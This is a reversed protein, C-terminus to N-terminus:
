NQDFSNNEEVEEIPDPMTSLTEYLIKEQELRALVESIKVQKLLSKLSSTKQNDLQLTM